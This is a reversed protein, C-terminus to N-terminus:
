YGLLYKKKIYIEKILKKEYLNRKNFVMRQFIDVNQIKIGFYYLIYVLFIFMEFFMLMFIGFVKDLSYSFYVM